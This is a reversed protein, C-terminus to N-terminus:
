FSFKTKIWRKLAAIIISIISSGSRQVGSVEFKLKPNSELRQIKGNSHTNCKKNNTYSFNFKFM